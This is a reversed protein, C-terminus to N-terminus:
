RNGLRFRTQADIPVGGIRGPIFRCRALEGALKAPNDVNVSQEFEVSELPVSGDRRVELTVTVRAHRARGWANLAAQFNTMSTFMGSPPGGVFVAKCTPAAIPYEELRRDDWSLPLGETPVIVPPTPMGEPLREVGVAEPPKGARGEFDLTLTVPLAASGAGKDRRFRCDSLLRVAVSRYASPGITEVALVRVSATDPRGGDGLLFAVQGSATVLGIPEAPARCKDLRYTAQAPLLAPLMLILVAGPSARM